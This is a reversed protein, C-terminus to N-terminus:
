SNLTKQYVQWLDAALKEEDFRRAYQYGEEIMTQRLDEQSLVRDIADALENPNCPDVYISHPGGAEELCSGQAGIVPIRSNLAELLPIGFGEFFSPYVFVSAMQYFAPLAHFPVGHLMHLRKELGNQRAFTMVQDAYPTHKGVAVVPLDTQTHLLAQIILMLNKRSEISGLYLIYHEPLGYTHRVQEKEMESVKQRFQPDCGQYVVDIKEPAIRYFDVIDRKTCESVAIIRDALECAKRFKFQYIKRDIAHYYEPYRLFILDHITVISKTHAAQRINLPLENSLGHFLDTQNQRIDATMGWSRWFSRFLTDTKRHPTIIETNTHVRGLLSAKAPNPVYLQYQNQAAYRSMIDIVFRSYNGLGTRNQAARKADFGIKM